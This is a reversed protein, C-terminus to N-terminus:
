EYVCSFCVYVCVCVCVCVCMYIYLYYGMLMWLCLTHIIQTYFIHPIDYLDIRTSLM